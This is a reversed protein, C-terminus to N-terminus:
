PEGSLIITKTGTVLKGLRWCEHYANAPIPCGCGTCWVGGGDVTTIFSAMLQAGDARPITLMQSM